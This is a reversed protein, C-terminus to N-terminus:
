PAFSTQGDRRWLTVVECGAATLWLETGAKRLEVLPVMAGTMERAVMLLGGPLGLVSHRGGVALLALLVRVEDHTLVDVVRTVETVTM